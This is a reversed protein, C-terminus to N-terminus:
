EDGFHHLVPKPAPVFVPVFVPEVEVGVMDCRSPSLLMEFM